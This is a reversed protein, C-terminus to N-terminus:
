VYEVCEKCEINCDMDSYKNLGGCLNCYGYKEEFCEKCLFGNNYMECDYEDWTHIRGCDVCIVSQKVIDDNAKM